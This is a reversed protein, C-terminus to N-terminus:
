KMSLIDFQEVCAFFLAKNGGKIKIGETENCNAFKSPEFVMFLENNSIGWATCPLIALTRPIFL